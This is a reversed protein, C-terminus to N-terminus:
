RWIAAGPRSLHSRPGRRARWMTATWPRSSRLTTTTTATQTPPTGARWTSPATWARPPSASAAPRCRRSIPPGSRTPSLDPDPSPGPTPNPSPSPSPNPDTAWVEAVPDFEWTTNQVVSALNIGGLVIIVGNCAVAQLDSREEPLHVAPAWEGAGAHLSGGLAYGVPPVVSQTVVVSRDGDTLQLETNAVKAQLSDVEGDTIAAADQLTHVKDHTHASTAQLADLKSEMDNLRGTLVAGVLVGCLGFAFAIFVMALLVLRQAGGLGASGARQTLKGGDVELSVSADSADSIPNDLPM